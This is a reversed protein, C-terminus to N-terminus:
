LSGGRHCCLLCFVQGFFGMCWSSKASRPFMKGELALWSSSALLEAIAFVGVIVIRFLVIGIAVDSDVVKVRANDGRKLLAWGVILVISVPPFNEASGTEDFGIFVNSDTAKVGVGIQVVVSM